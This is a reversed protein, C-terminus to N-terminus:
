LVEELLKLVREYSELLAEYGTRISDYDKERAAMEQKYALRSLEMAGVSGAANKLGHTEILYREYDQKQACERIFPIKERGEELATELVEMYIDMDGICIELGTETDIGNQELLEIIEEATKM